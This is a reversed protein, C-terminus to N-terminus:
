AAGRTQVIRKELGAIEADIKAVNAAIAARGGDTCFCLGQQNRLRFRRLREIEAWIQRRTIPANM